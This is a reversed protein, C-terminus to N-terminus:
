HLLGLEPSPAEDVASAAADLSMLQLRRRRLDKKTDNQQKEVADRQTENEPTTRLQSSNSPCVDGTLEDVNVCLATLMAADFAEDSAALEPLPDLEFMSDTPPLGAGVISPRTLCDHFSAWSASCGGLSISVVSDACSSASSFSTLESSISVDDRDSWSDNDVRDWLDGEEDFTSSRPGVAADFHKRDAPTSAFSSSSSDASCTSLSEDTSGEIYADTCDDYAAPSATDAVPEVAPTVPEAATKVAALYTAAFQPNAASPLLFVGQGSPLLVPFGEDSAELDDGNEDTPHPAYDWWSLQSGRRKGGRGRRRRCRVRTRRTKPVDLNENAEECIEDNVAITSM